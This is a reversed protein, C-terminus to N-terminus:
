YTNTKQKLSFVAYSLSMLSQLDSTHEESRLAVGGPRACLALGAAGRVLSLEPSAAEGAARAGLQVRQRARGVEVPPERGIVQGTRAGVGVHQAGSAQQGLCIM